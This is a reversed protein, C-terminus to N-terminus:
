DHHVFPSTLLFYVVLSLNLVRLDEFCFNHLVHVVFIKYLLLCIFLEDRRPCYSVKTYIHKNTVTSYSSAAVVGDSFATSKASGVETANKLTRPVETVISTTAVRNKQRLAAAPSIAAVAAAAKAAAVKAKQSQLM